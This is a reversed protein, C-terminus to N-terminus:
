LSKSSAVPFDGSGASLFTQTVSSAIRHVPFL